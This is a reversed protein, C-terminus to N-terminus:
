CDVFLRNVRSRCPQATIVHRSIAHHFVRRKGSSPSSSEKIARECRNPATRVAALKNMRAAQLEPAVGLGDLGAAEAAGGGDVAGASEPAGPPLEAGEATASRV